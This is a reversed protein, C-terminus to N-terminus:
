RGERIMSLETGPLKLGEWVELFPNSLQELYLDQFNRRESDRKTLLYYFLGVWKTQIKQFRNAGVCQGSEV